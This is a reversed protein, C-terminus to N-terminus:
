YHHGPPLFSLEEEPVTPQEVPTKDVFVGYWFSCDKVSSRVISPDSVAKEECAPNMYCRFSTGNLSIPQPYPILGGKKLLRGATWSNIKTDTSDHKAKAWDLADAVSLVVPVNKKSLISALSFISDEVRSINRVKRNRKERERVRETEQKKRNLEILAIRELLSAFAEERTEGEGFLGDEHECKSMFIAGGDLGVGKEFYFTEREM